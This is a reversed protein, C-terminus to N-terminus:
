SLSGSNQSEMTQHIELLFISLAGALNVALRAHHVLPQARTPSAGHADGVKTRLSGVSNAISLTAQFIARFDEDTELDPSIDLLPYVVRSLNRLDKAQPTSDGKEYLIFKYTAEIMSSAATIADAPDKVLSLKARDWERQITDIPHGEHMSSILADVSHEILVINSGAYQWGDRKLSEIVRQSEPNSIDVVQEIFKMLKEADELKDLRLPVLYKDLFRDKNRTSTSVVTEDPHIDSNQFFVRLENYSGGNSQLYAYLDSLTRGSVLKNNM